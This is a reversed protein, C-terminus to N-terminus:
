INENTSNDAMSQLFHDWHGDPVEIAAIIALDISANKLTARDTSALM